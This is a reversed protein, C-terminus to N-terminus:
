MRRRENPLSRGLEFSIEEIPKFVAWLAEDRDRSRAAGLLGKAARRVGWWVLGPRRRPPFAGPYRESLWAAGAGHLLKQSVLARVTQRSLHVVAAEERREAEWGAARLRFTLDADEAARIDERFGGVAEFAERRCATNSTQAFSWEGFRHTNDQSMLGRIHAYRAAARAGAPVEEDRVGGAILGTREGPPPEFYRDLLDPPAMVDADIFVLWEASGQAVGRNRGYGPTGRETAQIVPVAGETPLGHGPTNDVVLLSDGAGLELQALRSRLKEVDALGGRFPVVVDV